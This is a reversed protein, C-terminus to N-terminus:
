DYVMEFQEPKNAISILLEIKQIGTSGDRFWHAFKTLDENFFIPILQNPFLADNNKLGHKIIFGTPLKGNKWIPNKNGDGV